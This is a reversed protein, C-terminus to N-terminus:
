KATNGQSIEKARVKINKRVLKRCEKRMKERDPVSSKLIQKFIPVGLDPPLNTLNPKNYRVSEAM